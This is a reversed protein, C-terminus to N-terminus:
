VPRNPDKIQGSKNSNVDYRQKRGAAPDALEPDKSLGARELLPRNFVDSKMDDNPPPGVAGCDVPSYNIEYKHKAVALLDGPDLRKETVRINNVKTGNRSGMDRAYWYGGDLTLQCHNASVNPFRLVIDCKERRGIKLQKKLLPIPDGGGLPVLEGYM